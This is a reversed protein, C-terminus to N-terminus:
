NGNYAEKKKAQIIVVAIATIVVFGIITAVRGGVTTGQASSALGFNHSFAAGAIMGLVSMASD